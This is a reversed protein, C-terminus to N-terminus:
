EPWTAILLCSRRLNSAQRLGSFHTAERQASWSLGYETAAADGGPECIGSCRLESWARDISQQCVREGFLVMPVTEALIRLDLALSANRAYWVDLAAKDAASIVRGGKVQAWGTLGPRVLLRAAFAAPQDVPLLPRPGVFSMEGVLINYLQPVEDLRTRRLIRGIASLREEDPVCNGASDHAAAMTRFKYLKFPRGRAGQISLVMGFGFGM